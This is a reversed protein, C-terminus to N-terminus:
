PIVDEIASVEEFSKFHGTKSDFEPRFLIVRRKPKGAASKVALGGASLITKLEGALTNAVTSNDAKDALKTLKWGNEFEFGFDAKALFNHTAVRYPKRYNPLYLPTVEVNEKIQEKGKDDKTTEVTVTASFYLEPQYIIYGSCRPPSGNAWQATENAAIPTIRYYACGSLAIPLLLASCLIAIKM